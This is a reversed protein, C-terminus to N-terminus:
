ILNYFASYKFEDEDKEGVITDSTPQNAYLIAIRIRNVM